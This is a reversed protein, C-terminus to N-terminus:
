DVEDQDRGGNNLHAHVYGVGAHHRDLLGLAESQRLQVLKAPAYAAARRLAVADQHGFLHAVHRARADPRQHFGGVPKVNGFHVQLQAAGALEEPGPLRPQRREPHGIDQAVALDEFDRPALRHVEDGMRRVRFIEAACHGIDAVM